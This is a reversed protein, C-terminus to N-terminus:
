LEIFGWRRSKANQRACSALSYVRENSHEVRWYRLKRMGRDGRCRGSERDVVQSAEFSRRKMRKGLKCYWFRMLIVQIQKWQKDLYVGALCEGHSFDSSSWRCISVEWKVLRGVLVGRWIARGSWRSVTTVIDCDEMIRVVEIDLVRQHVLPSEPKRLWWTSLYPTRWFGILTQLIRQSWM